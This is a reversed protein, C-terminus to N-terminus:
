YNLMKIILKRLMKGTLPCNKKLHFKPVMFLNLRNLRPQNNKKINRKFKKKM